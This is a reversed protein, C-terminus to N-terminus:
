HSLGLCFPYPSVSKLNDCLFVNHASAYIVSLFGAFLPILYRVVGNLWLTASLVMDPIGGDHDDDVPQSWEDRVAVELNELAEAADAETVLDNDIDAVFNVAICNMLLDEPKTTACFVLYLIVMLMLGIGTNMLEGYLLPWDYWAAGPYRKSQLYRVLMDRCDDHMSVILNYCSYIFLILGLTRVEPLDTYSPYLHRDKGGVVVGSPSGQRLKAAILLLGLVLQMVLLVCLKPVFKSVNKGRHRGATLALCTYFDLEGKESCHKFEEIDLREVQPSEPKEDDAGATMQKWAWVCSAFGLTIIACLVFLRAGSSLQPMHSQGTSAVTLLLPWNFVWTSHEHHKDLSNLFELERSAELFTASKEMRGLIVKSEQESQVAAVPIVWILFCGAWSLLM